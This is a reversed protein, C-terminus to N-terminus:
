KFRPKKSHDKGGGSNFGPVEMGYGKKLALAMDMVDLQKSGRHKALKLADQTVKTVFDDAMELLVEQVQDELTYSPDISQCITQLKTGIMHPSKSADGTHKGTTTANPVESSLSAEKWSPATTPLLQQTHNDPFGAAARAISQRRQQESEPVSPTNSRSTLRQSTPRPTTSTNAATAAAQQSSPSDM